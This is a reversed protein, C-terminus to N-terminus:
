KIHCIVIFTKIAHQRLGRAAKFIYFRNKLQVPQVLESNIKKEGCQFFFSLNQVLAVLEAIFFLDMIHATLANDISKIYRHHSAMHWIFNLERICM